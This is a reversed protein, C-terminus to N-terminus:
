TFLLGEEKAKSLIGYIEKDTNQHFDNYYAGVSFAYTDVRNACAVHDFLDETKELTSMFCVPIALIAEKAGKNKVYEGAVLATYGTAIGDDVIIVIKDKIDPHKEGLYKKVRKEIKALAKEKANEIDEQSINGYKIAEQNIKVTGDPAVAGIAVEPNDPHSIKKTIILNFPINLKKAMPYAVVVGGRPIALIVSDEIKLSYDKIEKALYEGANERNKYRMERGGNMM